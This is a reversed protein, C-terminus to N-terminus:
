QQESVTVTQMVDGKVIAKAVDLGTVVKGFLNYNPPLQDDQTNIFFQSGNTDPGSNAMAITGAVYQNRVPEDPFSFGPGGQGCTSANVNSACNPDGGQIVPPVQNPVPGVRHFPIGDYFHNRALTVVANVTKPALGPQLCIVIKGKATTITMEYLKGTDITMAPSSQYKHVDAPPNLPALPPGFTAKSCDAFPIPPLSPTASVTATPQATASATPTAVAVPTSNNASNVAVAIGIGGLVLVATTAIIFPLRRRDVRPSESM